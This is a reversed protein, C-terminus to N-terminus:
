TRQQLVCVCNNICEIGVAFFRIIQMKAQTMVSGFTKDQALKEELESEHRKVYDKATRM